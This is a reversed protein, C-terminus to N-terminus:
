FSPLFKVIKVETLIKLLIDARVEAEGNGMEKKVERLKRREIGREDNPLIKKGM